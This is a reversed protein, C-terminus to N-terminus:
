MVISEENRLITLVEAKTYNFNTKAKLGFTCISKKDYKRAATEEDDFGGNYEKYHNLTIMVQWKSKNKSVGWYRSGRYNKAEIKANKRLSKVRKQFVTKGETCTELKAMLRRRMDSMFEGIDFNETKRKGKKSLKKPSTEEIKTYSDLDTDSQSCSEQHEKMPKALVIPAVEFKNIDQMVEAEKYCKNNISEDIAPSFRQFLDFSSSLKPLDASVKNLSIKTTISTPELGFLQRNFQLSAASLYSDMITKKNYLEEEGELGLTTPFNLKDLLHIINM